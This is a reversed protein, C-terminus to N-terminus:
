LQSGRLSYSRGQYITVIFRSHGISLAKLEEM